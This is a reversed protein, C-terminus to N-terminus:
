GKVSGAVLGSVIFRQFFVALIAPPLTALVGVAAIVGYDTVRGAAFDAIAIPLTKSSLDSTFILAYFFEDWAVLFSLMATAVIAPAVLPLVVRRLTFQTSAGEIFAAHEIEVPLVDFNSKMLWVAFPLLLACYVALLTIINNLLGFNGFTQYLPLVYTIPPMMITALFLFLLLMPAQRRSFAYAAPIALTLAVLTAGGSTLISNRLAMLFRKGSGDEWDFLQVYRSFDLESPVWNLPVTTLDKPSSISMIVLWILPALTFFALVISAGYLAANHLLKRNM